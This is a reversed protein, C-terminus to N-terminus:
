RALQKELICSFYICVRGKIDHAAWTLPCTDGKFRQSESSSHIHLDQPSHRASAVGPGRSELQTGATKASLPVCWTVSGERKERGTLSGERRWGPDRKRWCILQGGRRRERSPSSTWHRPMVECNRKECPTAWLHVSTLFSHDRSSGLTDGWATCLQLFTSDPFFMEAERAIVPWGTENHQFYISLRQPLPRSCRTEGKLQCM